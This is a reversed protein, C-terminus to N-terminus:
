HDAGEITIHPSKWSDGVRIQHNLWDFELAGFKSLLDRGLICTNHVGSLVEFSHRVIQNDGLDLLVELRGVVNVPEQTLGFIKNSISRMHEQLGLNRVTQLDMVSPGAGSDLLASVSKGNIKVPLVVGLCDLPQPQGVCFIKRSDSSPKKASCDKLIYGKQGCSPCRKEPCFRWAHRGGCIHCGSGGAFRSKDTQKSRWNNPQGKLYAVQNAPVLNDDDKADDHEIVAVKTISEFNRNGKNLAYGKEALEAKVSRILKHADAHELSDNIGTVDAKIRTQVDRPVQAALLSAVHKLGLKAYTAKRKLSFFYEGIDQGPQWHLRSVEQMATFTDMPPDLVGALNNLAEELSNASKVIDRVAERDAIDRNLYAPLLQIARKEGGDAALMHQTSAEFLHRWDEIRDGKQLPPVTIPATAM